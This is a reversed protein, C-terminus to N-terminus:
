EKVTPPERLFAGLMVLLQSTNDLGSQIRHVHWGHMYSRPEHGHLEAMESGVEYASERMSTVEDLIASLRAGM